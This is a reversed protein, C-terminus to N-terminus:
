LHHDVLYREFTAKPLPPAFLFGQAFECGSRAVFARQYEHELGEAVAVFGLNRALSVIATAVAGSRDDSPKAIFRRDIKLTHLPLEHLYSLSSYGTGFDDIAVGFGLRDMETIREAAASLDEVLLSETIELELRSPDTGTGDIAATLRDLFDVRNFEAASINVSVRGEAPFIGSTSWAALDDAVTGLVFESIASISGTAEATPIFESPPVPGRECHHWRVLAEAGALGGTAVDIIPQYYVELERRATAVRLDRDLRLNDHNRIDITMDHVRFQNRGIQRGARVARDAAALLDVATIADEPGRSAGVPATLHLELGDHAVPTAISSRIADALQRLSADFVAGADNSPFVILFEDVGVRGVEAVPPCLARLRTAMEVLVADGVAPGFSDNILRFGDLDVHLVGVRNRLGSSRWAISRKRRWRRSGSM